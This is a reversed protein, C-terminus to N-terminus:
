RKRQGDDAPDHTHTLDQGDGPDQPLSFNEEWGRAPDAERTNDRAESADAGRREFNAEWAAGADHGDLRRLFAARGESEVERRVDEQWEPAKEEAELTAEARLKEYADPTLPQRPSHYGVPTLEPQRATQAVKERLIEDVLEARKEQITETTRRTIEQHWREQEAAYEARLDESDLRDLREEIELKQDIDHNKNFEPSLQREWGDNSV